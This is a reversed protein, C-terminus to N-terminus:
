GYANIDYLVLSGLRYLSKFCASSATNISRDGNVLLIPELAVAIAISLTDFVIDTNNIEGEAL